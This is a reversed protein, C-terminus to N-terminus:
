AKYVTYILSYLIELSKESQQALFTQNEQLKKWFKLHLIHLNKHPNKKNCFVVQVQSIAVARFLKQM